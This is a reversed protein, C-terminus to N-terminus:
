TKAGHSKNACICTRDESTKAWCRSHANVRCSACMMPRPAPFGYSYPQEVTAQAM